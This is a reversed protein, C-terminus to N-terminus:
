QVVGSEPAQARAVLFPLLQEVAQARTTDDRLDEIRLKLWGFVQPDDGPSTGTRFGVELAALVRSTAEDVLRGVVAGADADAVEEVALRLLLEAV